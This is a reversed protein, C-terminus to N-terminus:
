RTGGTIEIDVRRDRWLEGRHAAADEGVYRVQIRAADVGHEVLYAQVALARDRSLAENFRERGRADAHGEVVFTGAQAALRDLADRADRDLETSRTEFFVQTSAPAAAPAPEPAPAPTPEVAPPPTPTPEAAAVAPAPAPAPDPTPAPEVPQQPVAEPSASALRTAPAQPEAGVVKPALVMDLWLVDIAGLGLSAGLIARLATVSAM